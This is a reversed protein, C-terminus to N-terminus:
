IFFLKGEYKNWNPPLEAAHREKRDFVGDLAQGGNQAALFFRGCLGGRREMDYDPDPVGYYTNYINQLEESGPRNCLDSYEHLRDKLQQM